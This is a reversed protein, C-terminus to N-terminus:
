LCDKNKLLNNELDGDNMKLNPDRLFKDNSEQEKNIRDKGNGNSNLLGNLQDISKISALFNNEHHKQNNGATFRENKSHLLNERFADYEITGGMKHNKFNYMQIHPRESISSLTKRASKTMTEYFGEGTSFGIEKTVLYM